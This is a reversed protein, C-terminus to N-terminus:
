NNHRDNELKSVRKQNVAKWSDVFVNGLRAIVEIVFEAILCNFRWDRSEPTSVMEFDILNSKYKFTTLEHGKQTKYSIEVPICGLIIILGATNVLGDLWPPDIILGKRELSKSAAQYLKIGWRLSETPNYDTQEYSKPLIPFGIKEIERLFSRIPYEPRMYFEGESLQRAYKKAFYDTIKLVSEAKENSDWISYGEALIVGLAITSPSAVITRKMDANRPPDTSLWLTAVEAPTLERIEKQKLEDIM